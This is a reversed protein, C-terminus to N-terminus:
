IINQVFEQNIILSHYEELWSREYMELKFVEIPPGNSKNFMLSYVNSTLSSARLNKIINNM